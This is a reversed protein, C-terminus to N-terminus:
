SNYEYDDRRNKQCELYIKNVLEEAETCTM